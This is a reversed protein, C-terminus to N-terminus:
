NDVKSNNLFFEVMMNNCRKGEENEFCFHNYVHGIEKNPSAEFLYTLNLGYQDADKKLRLTHSNFYDNYSTSAFIATPKYGSQYYYRPSNNKIFDSDLYRESLMWKCGKKFLKDKAQYVVYNYDYMTSNVAVGSIKAKPLESIGYYDQADKNNLLIDLMLCIHGGASDGTLFLNDLKLGYYVKNEDIFKLAKFADMVQDMISVSGDKEGLRYNIAVVNFGRNVFWSIFVRHEEKNGYVYAGGHIYFLTIGNQKEPNTYIDLKHYDEGDSCYNLDKKINFNGYTKHTKNFKIDGRSMSYIGLTLPLKFISM